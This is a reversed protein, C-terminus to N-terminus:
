QNFPGQEAYRKVLRTALIILILGIGSNILLGIVPFQAWSAVVNYLGHIAAALLLYPLVTMFYREANWFKAKAIGIGWIAALGIHLPVANFQRVVFSVYGYDLMYEINEFVSFGLAVSMSYVLGDAPENFQHLRRILLITVAAKFFEENLGVFGYFIIIKQLNYGGNLWHEHEYGILLGFFHNFLGAPLSSMFGGALMVLLVTLFPEREFRDYKRIIWIWFLITIFLSVIFLYM